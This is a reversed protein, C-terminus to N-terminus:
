KLTDLGHRQRMSIKGEIKVEYANHIIRDMIAESIPSDYEPDPNIRTYWGATEYQTCLIMSGGSCRAEVIELLDYAEQPKLCRILWEDLILLDVKQYSRIAKKLENCSRSVNLEDLLEPMRVYRVSKHKRCAANGLACAIYTKGNGSAGKLIIHHGEEIYKCAAFRLIEAKDLKRDEYYEIGEITANPASFHASRILREIKNNQRREWEADVLMALREEFSLQQCTPDALQREMEKAMASMRMAKLSDVTSQNIM